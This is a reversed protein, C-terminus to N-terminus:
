LFLFDILPQKLDPLQPGSPISSHNRSSKTNRESTIFFLKLITHKLHIGIHYTFQIEIFSNSFFSVSLINIIILTPCYVSPAWQAMSEERQINSFKWLLINNLYEKLHLKFRWFISTSPKFCPQNRGQMLEPLFSACFESKVALYM